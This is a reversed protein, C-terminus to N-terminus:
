LEPGSLLLQAVALLFHLLRLLLHLPQFVPQLHQKNSLFIRVAGVGLSMGSADPGLRSM